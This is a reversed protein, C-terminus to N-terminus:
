NEAGPVIIKYYRAKEIYMKEFQFKREMPSFYTMSVITGDALILGESPGLGVCTCCKPREWISGTDMRLFVAKELTDIKWCAIRLEVRTKRFAVRELKVPFIEEPLVNYGALAFFRVADANSLVLVDNGM